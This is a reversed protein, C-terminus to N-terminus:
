LIVEWYSCTPTQPTVEAYKTGSDPIKQPAKTPPTTVKYPVIPLKVFVEKRLTLAQSGASQGEMQSPFVVQVYPYQLLECDDV